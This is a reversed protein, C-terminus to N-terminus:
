AASRAGANSVAPPLVIAIRAGHPAVNTITVEGNHEEVIKRV